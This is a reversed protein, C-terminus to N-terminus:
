LSILVNFFRQSVVSMRQFSCSLFDRANLIKPKFFFPYSATVGRGSHLDSTGGPVTTGVQVSCASTGYINIKLYFVTTLDTELNIEWNLSDLKEFNGKKLLFVGIEEKM